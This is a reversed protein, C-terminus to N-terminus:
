DLTLTLRSCYTCQVTFSVVTSIYQLMVLLLLFLITSYNNQCLLYWPHLNFVVYLLLYWAHLVPVHIYMIIIQHQVPQVLKSYGSYYQLQYLSFIISRVLSSMKIFWVSKLLVLVPIWSLFKIETMLTHNQTEQWFFILILLVGFANSIRLVLVWHHLMEKWILLHLSICFYTLWKSNLTLWYVLHLRLTFLHSTSPCFCFSHLSWM